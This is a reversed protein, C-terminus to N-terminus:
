GRARAVFRSPTEGVVRKFDRAFHAQDAYDLSAALAALSPRDPAKLQEVAEHLRFRQLVWKPSVGVLHRFSRQLTRADLGTAECVGEVRLLSRDAAMREVLDRVRRVESPLSPLLPGLFATALAIRRDLVPEAHTAEAWAEGEAGFVERLPRVRNALLAMSREVLPAFAAPRFTIGFVRGEGALRRTLRGTRPGAVEARADGAEEVFVIQASPYPLAEAVLPATLAWQVFWFHHVYPALEPPPLVRLGHKRGEAPSALLVGRAPEAHRRESRPTGM